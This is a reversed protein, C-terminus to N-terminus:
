PGQGEARTLFLIPSERCLRGGGRLPPDGGNIGREANEEQRRALGREGRPLSAAAAAADQLWSFPLFGHIYHLLEVPLSHMGKLDSTFNHM